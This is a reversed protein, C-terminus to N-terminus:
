LFARGIAIADWGPDEFFRGNETSVVAHILYPSIRGLDVKTRAGGQQSTLEALMTGDAAYIHATQFAPQYNALADIQTKWPEALNRYYLVRAIIGCASLLLFGVVGIVALLALLQANSRRKKKLAEQYIPSERQLDYDPPEAVDEQVGFPAP